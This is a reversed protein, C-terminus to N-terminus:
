GRVVKIAKKTVLKAVRTSNPCGYYLVPYLNDDKSPLFEDNNESTDTIVDEESPTEQESEIDEVTNPERELTEDKVETTDETSSEDTLPETQETSTEETSNDSESVETPSEDTTSETSSEAVKDTDKTGQVNNEDVVSSGEGANNVPKGEKPTCGAIVLASAVLVGALISTVLKNRKM